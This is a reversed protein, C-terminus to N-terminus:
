PFVPDLLCDSDGFKLSISSCHTPCLFNVKDAGSALGEGTPMTVVCAERDRIYAQSTMYCLAGLNRDM